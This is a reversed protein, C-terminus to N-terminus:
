PDMLDLGFHAAFRDILGFLMNGGPRQSDMQLEHNIMESSVNNRVEAKIAARDKEDLMGAHLKDLLEQEDPHFHNDKYALLRAFYTVQARYSDEEIHPLIDAIEPPADMDELLQDEQERSLGAKERMNDFMKHLYAKEDAHLMGDAHAMAIVCRWMNFKSDSFDGSM